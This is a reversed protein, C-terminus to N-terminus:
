PRNERLKTRQGFSGDGYGTIIGYEYAISVADYHLDTKAVDTFAKKGTGPKMMGLAKVVITAFEGRTIDRDPEFNGDGVGNIILRSGMNNVDEKAWHNEVDKFAKPSWIVSYTSNTLSNIKAYYKGDIAIMITPM